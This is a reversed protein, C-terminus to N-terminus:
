ERQIYIDRWYCVSNVTVQPNKEIMDSMDVFEIGNNKVFDISNVSLLSIDLLNVVVGIIKTIRYKLEDKIDSGKNLYYYGNKNKYLNKTLKPTTLFTTLNKFFNEQFDKFYQNIYTELSPPPCLPITRM